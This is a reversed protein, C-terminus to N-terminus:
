KLHVPCVFLPSLLHFEMDFIAIALHPSIASAPCFCTADVCFFECAFFQDVEFVAVFAVVAGVEVVGEALADVDAPCFISVVFAYSLGDWSALTIFLGLSM